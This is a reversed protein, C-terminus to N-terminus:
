YCGLMAKVREAAANAWDQPDYGFGPVCERNAEVTVTVLVRHQSAVTAM